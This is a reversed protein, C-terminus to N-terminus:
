LRTNETKLKDYYGNVQRQVDSPLDSFFNPCSRTESEMHQSPDRGTLLFTLDKALKGSQGFFFPQPMGALWFNYMDCVKKTNPRKNIAMLCDNKNMYDIKDALTDRDTHLPFVNLPNIQFFNEWNNLGLRQLHQYGVFTGLYGYNSM